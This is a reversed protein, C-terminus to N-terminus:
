KTALPLNDVMDLLIYRNGKSFQLYAKEFWGHCTTSWLERNKTNITKLFYEPTRLVFEMRTMAVGSCDKLVKRSVCLLGAADFLPSKPFADRYSDLLIHMEKM